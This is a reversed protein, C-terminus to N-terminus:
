HKSAEALDHLCRQYVYGSFDTSSRYHTPREIAATLIRRLQRKFDPMKYYTPMWPDSQTGLAEIVRSQDDFLSVGLHMTYNRDDRLDFWVQAWGRYDVCLPKSARQRACAEIDAVLDTRRNRLRTCAGHDLQQIWTSDSSETEPPFPFTQPQAGGPEAAFMAMAVLAAAVSNRM